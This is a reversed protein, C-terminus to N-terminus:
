IRRWDLVVKGGTGQRATEFGREWEAAPLVDTIVGSIAEHLVPNSQLMASMAYWTEFMERGYIGKLTLMHTVVKGWNIAIDETPLGLLAIRGGHTMNDIMERLASARGSMELGIDFGETLRLEERAEAMRGHSVDITMDAGMRKALDLRSASVDT